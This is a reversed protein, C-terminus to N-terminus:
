SPRREPPGAVADIKQVPEVQIILILTFYSFLNAPDRVHFAFLLSTSRVFLGAEGAISTALFDHNQHVQRRAFSLFVDLATRDATSRVQEM